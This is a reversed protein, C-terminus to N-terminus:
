DPNEINESAFNMVKAVVISGGALM